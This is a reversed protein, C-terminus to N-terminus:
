PHLVSEEHQYGCAISFGLDHLRFKSVYNFHFLVRPFLEYRALLWVCIEFEAEHNTTKNQRQEHAEHEDLDNLHRPALPWHDYGHNDAEHQGSCRAAYEM